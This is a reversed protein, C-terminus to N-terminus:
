PSSNFDSDSDPDSDSAGSASSRRVSRQQEQETRCHADQAERAKEEFTKQAASEARHLETVLKAWQFGSRPAPAAAAAAAPAPSPSSAEAAGRARARPSQVPSHIPSVVDDDFAFPPAAGRDGGLSGVLARAAPRGAPKPPSLKTSTPV